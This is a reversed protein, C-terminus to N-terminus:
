PISNFQGRFQRIVSRVYSSASQASNDLTKTATDIPHSEAISENVDRMADPAIGGVIGGIPAGIAAGIHGFVLGIEGGVKTGVAVGVLRELASLGTKVAERPQEDNIQQAATVVDAGFAVAGAKSAIKEAAINIALSKVAGSAPGYGTSVASTAAAAQAAIETARAAESVGQSLHETSTSDPEESCNRINSGTTVTCVRRRGSPDMKNLPDNYVYAYLNLDDDYGVSDTQLFRGLVPDYVRAKYHYLSVESLAIQGTYRFRSGSFDGGAPEGYAGYRYVTVTPSSDTWAVISGREDPHLWRKTTLTAGEYWVIPEDVGPGHAYRKLLTAGNYEAILRDGDYLFDTTLGATTQRLRGLPDYSLTLSQSGSVSTLRNEADYAFARSGNATLNGNLDHTQTAGAVSTYQNRGNVAYGSTATLPSYAHAATANIRTQLQSALNYTFTRSLDNTTGSVNQTLLTLRSALDYDFDSSTSNPRTIADRRSLPDLTYTILLGSACGASGNECVKNVRNLNDFNSYVFNGDPWIVKTRNSAVDYDFAVSRGFTAESVLRKATGYGYIVGSGSDSVFRAWLPRGAEDYEFYVDNATGGPIDKVILRNLTDYQFGIITTRDRKTLSTRNGNEDYLYSEYDTASATGSGATGNPFHLEFLRDFANYAM